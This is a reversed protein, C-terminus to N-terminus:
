VKIGSVANSSSVVSVPQGLQRPSLFALSTFDVDSNGVGRVYVSSTVIADAKIAAVVADRIAAAITRNNDEDGSVFTEPITVPIGKYTGASTKEGVDYGNVTLQVYVIENKTLNEPLNTGDFSKGLADFGLEVINAPTGVRVVRLDGTFAQRFFAKVANYSLLESGSTPVQGGILNLYDNLNYVAVPKNEPFESISVEEPADVLMYVTNFSAIQPAGSVGTSETIYTGPAGGGINALSITM